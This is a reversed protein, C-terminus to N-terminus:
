LRGYSYNIKNTDATSSVIWYEATKADKIMSKRKARALFIRNKAKTEKAMFIRVFERYFIPSQQKQFIYIGTGRGKRQMKIIGKKRLPMIIDEPIHKEKMQKVLIEKTIVTEEDCHSNIFEAAAIAVSDMDFPKKNM